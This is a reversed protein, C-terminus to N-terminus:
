RGRANAPELDGVRPGRVLGPYDVQLPQSIGEACPEEGYAMGSQLCNIGGVAM